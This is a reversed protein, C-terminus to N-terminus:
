LTTLNYWMIIVTCTGPKIKNAIDHYGIKQVALALSSWTHGGIKQVKDQGHLWCALCEQLCLDPDERYKKDICELTPHYLGLRLGLRQWDSRRFHNKELIDVVEDLSTIDLNM